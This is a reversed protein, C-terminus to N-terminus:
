PKPFCNEKKSQNLYVLPTTTASFYTKFNSKVSCVNYKYSSVNIQMNGIKRRMRCILM